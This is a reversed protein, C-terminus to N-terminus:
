SRGVCRTGRSSRGLRHVWARPGNDQAENVCLGRVKSGFPTLGIFSGM